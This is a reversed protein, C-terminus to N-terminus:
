EFSSRSRGVSSGHRQSLSSIGRAAFVRRACLNRGGPGPLPPNRTTADGAGPAARSGEEVISKARSAAHHESIASALPIYIRDPFSSPAQDECSFTEAPCRGRIRLCDRHGHRDNGVLLCKNHLFPHWHEFLATPDLYSLVRRSPPLYTIWQNPARSPLLFTRHRVPVM